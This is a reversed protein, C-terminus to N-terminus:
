STLWSNPPCWARLCCHKPHVPQLLLRRLIQKECNRCSYVYSVHEIIKVRAPIIKLEKRVEKSMVHLDEGCQPCAQEAAPLTYEIVEVPLNKINEGRKGKKRQYAVTQTDPEDVFPRRESEAENFLNLQALDDRRSKESSAGFQKQRSLKLQEVYWKNLAELEQIRAKLKANEAELQAQTQM